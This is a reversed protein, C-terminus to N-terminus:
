GNVLTKGDAGRDVCFHYSLIASSSRDASNNFVKMFYYAAQEFQELGFYCGAVQDLIYWYMEDQEFKGDISKEFFDIAKQYEKTYHYARIVQYAYRVKLQPHNVASMASIGEEIVKSNTQGGKRLIDNYNWSYGISCKFQDCCQQAYKVYEFATRELPLDKEKWFETNREVDITLAADIEQFEWDTLLMQWLELNSQNHLREDKYSFYYTSSSRLFPYLETSSINTPDFLNYYFSEVPSPQSCAFTRSFSLTFLKVVLKNM